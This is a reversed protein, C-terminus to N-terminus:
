TILEKNCSHLYIGDTRASKLPKFTSIVWRVNGQGELIGEEGASGPFHVRYIETLTERGSQTDAMLLEISEARNALQRAM